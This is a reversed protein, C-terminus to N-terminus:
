RGTGAAHIATAPEATVRERARLQEDREATLVQIDREASLARVRWKDADVTGGQLSDRDQKSRMWRSEAEHLDSEADLLRKKNRAARTRPVIQDADVGRLSPGVTSPYFRKIDAIDENTMRLDNIDERFKM